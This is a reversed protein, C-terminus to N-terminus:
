IGWYLPVGPGPLLLPHTPSCPLSLPYPVKLIANSIYLFFFSYIMFLDAFLRRLNYFLLV